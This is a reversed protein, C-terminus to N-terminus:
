DLLTEVVASSTLSGDRLSLEGNAASYVQELTRRGRRDIKQAGMVSLKTPAALAALGGLGGYKLAGPLFMPDSTKTIGAFRFGGADAVTRTVQEGALGGALLVWPGTMGTGVLEISNVDKNGALLGIATLVDRM